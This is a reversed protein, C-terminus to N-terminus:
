EKALILYIHAYDMAHGEPYVGVRSRYREYFDNVISMKDEDSRDPSLGGLFTAESWSRM